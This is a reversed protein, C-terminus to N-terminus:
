IDKEDLICGFGEAQCRRRLFDEGHIELCRIQQDRNFEKKVPMGPFGSTKTFALLQDWHKIFAEPTLTAGPM